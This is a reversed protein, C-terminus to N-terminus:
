RSAERPVLHGQAPQWGMWVKEGETARQSPDNAPALATHTAGHADTLEYRLAPGQFIAETVVTEIVCPGSVPQRSVSMHEPRLVLTTQDGTQIRDILGAALDTVPILGGSESREVLVEVGRVDAVVCDILNAKGIFNAVFSTEPRLYVEEPAGIQVVRGRNMVAIRDSMTLAEEQDHTVYIFCIGVERQIRKLEIQMEQRLKLDLAGLPEDLLLVSPQNVLARALGVRQQEGGSLQRPLREALHSLRVVELTENVRRQVEDKALRARRPGFAVNEFVTMHPFLAYDQFVLNTSRRFPPIRSAEQGDLFLEGSTPEDFGAVLRLTTTKGCGSPGLLSFFEGQRVRLTVDDVAVVDGFRKTVNMLELALEAM